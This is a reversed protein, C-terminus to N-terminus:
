TNGVIIFRFQENRARVRYEETASRISTITGGLKLVFDVTGSSNGCKNWAYLSGGTTGVLLCANEVNDAFALYRIGGQEIQAEGMKSTDAENRFLQVKGSFDGVALLKLDSSIAAGCCTINFIHTAHTEASPDQSYLLSLAPPVVHMTILENITGLILSSANENFAISYFSKTLSFNATKIRYVGPLPQPLCQRISKLDEIRLSGGKIMPIERMDINIILDPIPVELAWNKHVAPPSPSGAMEPIRIARIRELNSMDQVVVTKDAM